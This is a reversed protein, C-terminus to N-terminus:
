RLLRPLVYRLLIPRLLAAFKGARWLLSPQLMTAALAAGGLLMRGGNGTLARMLRSRPFPAAEEGLRYDGVLGYALGFIEGRSRQLRECLAEIRQESAPTSVM